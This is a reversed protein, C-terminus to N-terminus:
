HWWSSCKILSEPGPFYTKKRRSVYHGPSYRNPENISQLSVTQTVDWDKGSERESREGDQSTPTYLPDYCAHSHPRNRPPHLAIIEDDSQPPKPFLVLLNVLACEFSLSTHLCINGPTLYVPTMSANDSLYFCFLCFLSYFCPSLHQTTMEPQLLFFFPQPIDATHFVTKIRVAIHEATINALTARDSSYLSPVTYKQLSDVHSKLMEYGDYWM